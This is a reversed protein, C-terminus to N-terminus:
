MVEGEDLLQLREAEVRVPKRVVRGEEEVAPTDESGEGDGGGTDTDTREDTTDRVARRDLERALGGIDIAEATAPEDEAESIAPMYGLM